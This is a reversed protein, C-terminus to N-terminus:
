QARESRVTLVSSDGDPAESRTGTVRKEGKLSTGVSESGGRDEGDVGVSILGFRQTKWRAELDDEERKRIEKRIIIGGGGESRNEKERCAQGRKERQERCRIRM